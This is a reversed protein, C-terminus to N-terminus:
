LRASKQFLLWRILPRVHYCLLPISYAAYLRPGSQLCHLNPNFRVSSSFFLDRWNDQAEPLSPIQTPHQSCFCIRYRWGSRHRPMSTCAPFFFFFAYHLQGDLPQFAGSPAMLVAGGRGGELDDFHLKLLEVHLPVVVAAVVVDGDEVAAFDVVGLPDSLVASVAGWRLRDQRPPTPAM